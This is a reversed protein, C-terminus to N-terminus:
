RAIPSEGKMAGPGALRGIAEELSFKRGQRIERELEYVRAGDSTLQVRNALREAVDGIFAHANAADRAGLRWSLILKSDADLAVWTWISGVNPEGRMEDPLNKDKAYCFNWVEDVQV